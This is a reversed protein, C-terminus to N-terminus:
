SQGGKMEQLHEMLQHLTNLTSNQAAQDLPLLLQQEFLDLKESCTAFLQQGQTSLILKKQRKDDTDVQDLVELQILAHIRKAISPKSVNLYEAIDISTCGQKLQIVYLVQWLSYNLKHPLLITNIEDSMLRACRLLSARFKLPNPM